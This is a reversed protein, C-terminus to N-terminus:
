TKSATLWATTTTRVSDLAGAGFPPQVESSPSPEPNNTLASPLTIVAAWTTWVASRM